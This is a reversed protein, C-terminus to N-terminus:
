YFALLILGIFNLKINYCTTYEQTLFGVLYVLIIYLIQKRTLIKDNAVHPFVQMLGISFFAPALLFVMMGKYLM